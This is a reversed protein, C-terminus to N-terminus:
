IEVCQMNLIGALNRLEARIDAHTIVWHQTIGTKIAQRFFDTIPTDLKVFIHAFGQLRPGARLSRGQAIVVKFREVDCFFSALTVRGPKARFELWAGELPNVECYEYDPTLRIGRASEALSLDHM